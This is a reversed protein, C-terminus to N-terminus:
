EADHDTGREADRDARREADGDTRHEADRDTRGPLCEDIRENGRRARDPRHREARLGNVAVTGHRVAAVHGDAADSRGGGAQRHPRERPDPGHDHRARRGARPLDRRRPVRAQDV